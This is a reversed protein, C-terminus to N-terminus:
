DELNDERRGFMEVALARTVPRKRRLAERDLAEVVGRAAALSREIRRELYVLLGEDPQLQRDAFLKVLVARLLADDPPALTVVPLARLRSHLDALPLSWGAPASTATLLLYASQERALNLLHFLAVDDVTPTVDEVLLAGTSLADPLTPEDLASAALVRAGARAAWIAGLHSKGSGQPGVLALAPAPWDPYRDITDLAAANGPSRVFDDRSFSEPHAFGLALQAPDRARPM